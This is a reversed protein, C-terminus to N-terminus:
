SADLMGSFEVDCFEPDASGGVFTRCCGFPAVVGGCGVAAAGFAGGAGEGSGTAVSSLRGVASAGGM